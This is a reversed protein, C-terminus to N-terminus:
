RGSPRHRGPATFRATSQMSSFGPKALARAGIRGYNSYRILFM